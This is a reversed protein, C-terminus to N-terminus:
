ETGWSGLGTWGPPLGMLQEVWAPNLLGRSKGFKKFRAPDPRGFRSKELKERDPTGQIAPHNSLGTQGHNARNSIKGAEAVTPTPWLSSGGADTHLALKRRQSYAGNQATVSEKWIKSLKPFGARSTGKSTKSSSEFLDLQILRKSSTPGCTAPITEGRDSAPPQFHNAHIAALWSTLETEFSKWRSPKLIRGFLRRIWGGKKWRQLWTPLPSPKSRWMLSSALGLAPSTLEESSDVTVAVFRCSPKFNNPVIWM